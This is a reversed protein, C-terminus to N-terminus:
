GAPTAARGARGAGARSEERLARAARVMNRLAPEVEAYGRTKLGCDPTVWVQGAPLVRLSARLRAAMEEASPIRPSHIDWVGPGIDRGYGRRRFAELLIESSRANEILLVDADMAEIADIIGGFESYCMHTQIQTAASAAGTAVRFCGVAWALHDSWAERRLPLGERFAPEDVQIVAAGARELELVEDQVALALQLCTVRPPQDDRVFSWQLLTVPGTLVAKVPRSSLSQAYRWWEVTVAAPRRVDGFLVPPKVYRTGYSQVWGHRTFAFGDFHEAFYEVMDAREFEGHAPVDVGAEEQVRIARAVQERLFRDYEVQGLTGRRYRQRAGRVAADQPFSGVTTTPFAPLRLRREQLRKREAAPAPRGARAPDVGAMRARVGPDRTRLSAARSRLIERNAELAEAVASRGHDLARALLATEDLKQRAFALWSRLQPDLTTEREVDLPVHMLSCSPAVVLREPDVVTALDELLALSAALDDVWVNRGDVVGVSLVKDPPFGSRRLRALDGRGRVLDLGVGAVPVRALVPLADGVDGFYAQVLLRLGSAAALRTYAAEVAALESASRDRVLCPEDLQIWDAGLRALRRLVEAYVDLLPELLDRLPDGAPGTARGLLLFSVPGLLVPRTLIGQALAESFEDFPKTSGLEFRTAADFEPVIYHYNTDFWKTMPLAALDRGGAQAGRAMAFYGDLGVDGGAFRYREPVAGVLVATDLVHDYLSFDNSPVHDIGAGRQVRWRETRLRRAAAELGEATLSGSWYAEAARKLERDTGIRPFGLNAAASM